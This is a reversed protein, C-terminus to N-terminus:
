EMRQAAEESAGEAEGPGSRLPINYRKLKRYL